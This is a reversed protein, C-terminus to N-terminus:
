FKNLSWLVGVNPKRNVGNPEETKSKDIWSLKRIWRYYKSNDKIMELISVGMNAVSHEESNFHEALPEGGQLIVKQKEKSTRIFNFGICTFVLLRAEM